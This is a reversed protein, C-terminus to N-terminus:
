MSCRDRSIFEVKSAQHTPKVSKSLTTQTCTILLLMLVSECPMKSPDFRFRSRGYAYPLLTFLVKLLLWIVLQWILGSVSSDANVTFMAVLVKVSMMHLTKPSNRGGRQVVLMGLAHVM